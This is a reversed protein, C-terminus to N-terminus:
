ELDLLNHQNDTKVAGEDISEKLKELSKRLEEIEALQRAIIAYEEKKISEAFMEGFFGELDTVCDDSLEKTLSEISVLPESSISSPTKTTKKRM